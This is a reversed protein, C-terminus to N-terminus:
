LEVKRKRPILRDAYINRILQKTDVLGKWGGASVKFRDETDSNSPSVITLMVEKGEALDINEMPKLVGKTFLAKVTRVM